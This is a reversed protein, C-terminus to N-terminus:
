YDAGEHAPRHAKANLSAVTAEHAQRPRTHTHTRPHNSNHPHPTLPRQARAPAQGELGRQEAGAM